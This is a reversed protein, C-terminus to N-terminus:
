ARHGGIEENREIATSGEELNMGRVISNKGYKAKIKLLAKQMANERAEAAAREDAEPDNLSFIDLQEYSKEDAKEATMVNEAAVTIRRVTLEPNAIKEFLETMGSLLRSPSATHKEFRATGHAHEPVERGYYDRRIIGEYNKRKEPDTVNETDYGLTLVLAECVLEKKALDLALQDTMERVILRAKEYPYPEKLVQGISLSNFKPRYAKIDKIECPEWGWAHDILLEANVGFLKYLLEENYFDGPKGVSCKAIDGMTYMGFKALRRATGGGVRWFDTIPRHSWFEERFSRENLEAIRAGNEDPPMHKAKVDMAVKCLFLNTGLGATATIGTKQYIDRMIKVALDHPTTKYTKLYATADIFVEDISYVHIDEPSFYDLYVKYIRTSYDMYFSMRPRAVIYDLRLCPNDKVEPDASSSGLFIKGPAAQLRAANIENVRQVVEFLRARGSIGYSKLSPSVALCITKETRSEDAVVLNTTLPDLGREM